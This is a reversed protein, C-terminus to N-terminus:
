YFWSKYKKKKTGNWFEMIGSKGKEMGVGWDWIWLEFGLSLKYNIIGRRGM